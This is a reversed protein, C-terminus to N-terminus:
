QIMYARYFHAGPSVAAIFSGTGGTVTVTTANSWTKLNASSQVQYQGDEGTVTVLVETSSQRRALLRGASYHWNLKINGMV